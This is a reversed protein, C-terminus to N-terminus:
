PNQKQLCILSGILHVGMLQRRAFRQEFQPLIEDLEKQSFLKVM